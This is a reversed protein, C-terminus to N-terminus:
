FAHRHLCFGNAVLISSFFNSSCLLIQLSTKKVKMVLTLKQAFAGFVNGLPLFLNQM